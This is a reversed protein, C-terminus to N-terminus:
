LGREKIILARFYESSSALISVCHAAKERVAITASTSVLLHVLLPVVGEEVIAM